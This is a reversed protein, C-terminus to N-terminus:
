KPTLAYGNQTTSIFAQKTLIKIKLRLRYIHTELTHTSLATNFGWVERLLVNKSVPKPFSQILVNLIFTEKETLSIEKTKGAVVLVKKGPIFELSGLSFKTSDFLSFQRLQNKIRKFLESVRLPKVIFDNAGANLGDISLNRNDNEILMIIPKEFGNKRLSDCFEIGSGDPLIVNLLLIDHKLSSLSSKAGSINVVSQFDTVGELLFQKKLVEALFLDGDILLVKANMLSYEISM